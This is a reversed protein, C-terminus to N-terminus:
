ADLPMDLFEAWIEDLHFLSVIHGGQLLKVRGDYIRAVYNVMGKGEESLAVVLVARSKHHADLTEPNFGWDCRLIDSVQMFGEWTKEVSRVVNGAFKRELNGEQMGRKARWNAYAAREEDKMREFLGKRALREAGEVINMGRGLLLKFLRFALKFAIYHVPPGIAMYDEWSLSRYYTTHYKFPYFPSLLLMGKIHRGLPFVDYSAGYLVQAAVTGPSGGAVYLKLEAELSSAPHLHDILATVQKLLQSPVEEAVSAASTRGWGPFTMSIFHIDRERLAPSADSADAIGFAGTLFLVVTNSAPNGNDAYEITCGDSVDLTRTM